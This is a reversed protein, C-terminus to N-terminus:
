CVEQLGSGARQTEGQPKRCVPFICGRFLVNTKESSFSFDSLFFMAYSLTPNKKESANLLTPVARVFPVSDLLSPKQKYCDEPRFKVRKKLFLGIWCLSSHWSHKCQILGKFEIASFSPNKFEEHRSHNLLTVSNSCVTCILAWRTVDEEAMEMEQNYLKPNPSEDKSQCISVKYQNLM